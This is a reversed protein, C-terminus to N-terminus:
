SGGCCAQCDKGNEEIEEEWYRSYMLALEMDKEPYGKSRLFGELKGSNRQDEPIICPFGYMWGSPPDIFTVKRKM